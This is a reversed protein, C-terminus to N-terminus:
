GGFEILEDKLKHINKNKNLINKEKAANTSIRKSYKSINYELSYLCLEFVDM